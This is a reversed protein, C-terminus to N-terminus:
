KELTRHLRQMLITAPFPKHIVDVAGLEFAQRIDTERMRASLMLVRLRNLVGGDRLRRLVQLGEVGPTDFELLLVRPMPNREPGLLYDLALIGDEFHIPRLDARKLTVEIVSILTQDPDVIAVDPAREAEPQWDTAVVSPGDLEEARAVADEGAHALDDVTRGDYPFEAVGVRHTAALGHRALADNMRTVAVRRPAGRLAVVVTGSPSLAVVDGERFERGLLEHETPPGEVAGPRRMMVALSSVQSQRQSGVLLRDILSRASAWGRPRWASGPDSSPQFGSRRVLGAKVRAALEDVGTSRDVVDDAGARYYRIPTVPDDDPPQVVVLLSRLDPHTRVLRTLAIAESRAVSGPVLVGQARKEGLASVLLEANDVAITTLGRTALEGTLPDAAGYLAVVPERSAKHHQVILEDVVIWPAVTAELVAAAMTGLALRQGVTPEEVIAIVPTEPIRQTLGEVVITDVDDGHSECFVVAVDPQDDPMAEIGDFSHHPQLGTGAAAWVVSDVRATPKGIVLVTIDDETPAPLDSPADKLLTRLEDVVSAADVADGTGFDPNGFTSALTRGLDAAAGFGLRGLWLAITSANTAADQLEDVSLTRDLRVSAALEIAQFHRELRAAIRDWADLVASGASAPNPTPPSSPAAGEAPDPQV